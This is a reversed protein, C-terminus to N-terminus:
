KLLVMRKVESGAATELRYFYVGSAVPLAADDRGDWYVEHEGAGRLAQELLRVRSGAADYITLTVTGGIPLVYRILTGPNFPNPVNQRLLAVAVAPTEDDNGTLDDCQLYFTPTATGVWGAADVARIRYSYVIDCGVPLTDYWQFGPTEPDGDVAVKDVMTMFPSGEGGRWVQYWKIREPGDNVDVAVKSWNLEVTPGILDDGALQRWKASPSAAAAPVYCDIEYDLTIGGIPRDSILNWLTLPLHAADGHAAMESGVTVFVSDAEGLFLWFPGMGPEFDITWGAPLTWDNFLPPTGLRIEAQIPAPGGELGSYLKIVSRKEFPGPCVRDKGGAKAVLVQHNIQAVNNDHPAYQSNQPDLDHWVIAGLCYHDVYLNPPPYEFEIYGEYTNDAGTGLVPITKNGIFVSASSPWLQGMMPDAYYFWIKAGSLTQAGVNHVRFWLHNKIGEAPADDDSDDDNDIWLDPSGWWAQCPNIEVCDDGPCDQICLNAGSANGVEFDACVFEGAGGCTSINRVAIGTAVGSYSRTDPVTAGDFTTQTDPCWRDEGDGRNEETDLDDANPEHEASAADACEVDIAKHDEWGNVQNWYLNQDYVDEDIHYIVLGSGYLWQDFGLPQRNEVVFYEPTYQGQSWIRVAIPEIEVPPVCFGTIDVGINFYNLWGLKEKCFATMHAPSDPGNWGGAGMLGWEGIGESNSNVTDYLDPLGLVHGYEHAFTGIGMQNGACRLGACIFYWNVGTTGLPHTTSPDDSKYETGIWGALQWAHSWINSYLSPDCAADIEPTVFAIFDVYGDDDISNPIGDPGDNDYQSFDVTPDFHELIEVILEGTQADGGMSPPPWLGWSSGEYYTDDHSVQYWDYVTGYPTLWGYSIEDYYDAFTGSPWPGHFLQSQLNQKPYPAAPTNNYLFPFVLCAKEGWIKTGGRAAAEAETIRGAALDRRNQIVQQLLRTYGYPPYELKDPQRVAELVQKPVPVGPPPHHIRPGALASTGQCLMVVLGALATLTRFLTKMIDGM